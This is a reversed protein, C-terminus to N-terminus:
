HRALNNERAAVLREVIARLRRASGHGLLRQAIEIEDGNLPDVWHVDRGQETALDKLIGAVVAPVHEIEIPPVRLIRLRDKLASPLATDDNATLLFSMHSLDVESQIYPDPYRKATENELMPLLAHALSGNRQSEASKDVEDIHMLPNAHGAARIVTLPWAPEGTSWRRATGGFASDGSASADYRGVYIGLLDAIRRVIRSKGSGSPGVILTSRLKVTECGVLDALLIDILRGANPFEGVLTNRAVALNPVLRLPLHKGIIDKFETAVEKAALTRSTGGIAKVVVVGNPKESTDIFVKEFISGAENAIIPDFFELTAHEIRDQSRLSLEGIIRAAAIPDALDEGFHRGAALAAWGALVRIVADTQKLVIEDALYDHVYGASQKDSAEAALLWWGRAIPARGLLALKNGVANIAAQRAAREALSDGATLAATHVDSPLTHMGTERIVISIATEVTESLAARWILPMENHPCGFRYITNRTKIWNM